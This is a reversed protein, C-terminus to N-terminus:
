FRILGNEDVPLGLYTQITFVFVEFPINLQNAVDGLNFEFEPAYSSGSSSAGCVYTCGFGETYTCSDLPKPKCKNAAQSCCSEATMGNGGSAVTPLDVHVMANIHALLNTAAWNEIKVMWTNIIQPSKAGGTLDVVVPTPLTNPIMLRLKQSSLPKASFKPATSKVAVAKPGAYADTIVFGMLVFFCLVSVNLIKKM